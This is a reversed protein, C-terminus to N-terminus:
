TASGSTEGRFLARAQAVAEEDAGSIEFSRLLLEEIDKKGGLLETQIYHLKREIPDAPVTIGLAEQERMWSEDSPMTVQVSKLLIIRLLGRNRDRKCHALTLQYEAWKHRDEDTQLTTEDHEHTEVAGGMTKIEYTPPEPLQHTQSYQELLFAIPQLTFTAGRSTTFTHDSM